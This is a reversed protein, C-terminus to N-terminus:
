KYANILHARLRRWASCVWKEWGRKVCWINDDRLWRWLGKSSESWYARTQRRSPLGSSLSFNGRHWRCWLYSGLHQMGKFWGPLIGGQRYLLLCSKREWPSRMNINGVPSQILVCFSESPFICFHSFFHYIKQDPLSPSTMMFTQESFCHPAFKFHQRLDSSM